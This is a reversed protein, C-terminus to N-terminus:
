VCGGVCGCGAGGRRGPLLPLRARAGASPGTRAPGPHARADEARPLCPPGRRACAVSAEGASPPVRRAAQGQSRSGLLPIRWAPTAATVSFSGKQNFHPSCLSRSAALREALRTGSRAPGSGRARTQLGTRLGLQPHPKATAPPLQAGGGGAM